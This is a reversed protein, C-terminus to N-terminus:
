RSIHLNKAIKTDENNKYKPIEIKELNLGVLEFLDKKRMGHEKQYFGGKLQRIKLFRCLCLGTNYCM